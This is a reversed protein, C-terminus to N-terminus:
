HFKVSKFMTEITASNKEMEEPEGLASIENVIGNKVSYISISREWHDLLWIDNEIRYAQEGDLQTSSLSISKVDETAEKLNKMIRDKYEELTPPPTPTDIDISVSPGLNMTGSKFPPLFMVSFITEPQVEKDISSHLFRWNNPYDVKVNYTSNEYTKYGSGLLDDLLSASAPQSFGFCLCTVIVSCFTFLLPRNLRKNINFEPTEM